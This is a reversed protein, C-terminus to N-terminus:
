VTIETYPFLKQVRNLMLYAGFPGVCQALHYLKEVMTNNKQHRKQCFCINKQGSYFYSSNVVVNWCGNQYISVSKSGKIPFQPMLYARFPDLYPTLQYTKEVMYHTDQVLKPKHASGDRWKQM